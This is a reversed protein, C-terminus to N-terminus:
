PKWNINWKYACLIRLALYRSLEQSIPTELISITILFMNLLKLYEYMRYCLDFEDKRLIIHTKWHISNHLKHITVRIFTIYMCVRVYMHVIIIKHVNSCTRLTTNSTYIASDQIHLSHPIKM